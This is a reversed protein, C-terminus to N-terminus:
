LESALDCVGDDNVFCPTDDMKRDVIVFCYDQDMVEGDDAIPKIATDMRSGDNSPVQWLQVNMATTISSCDGTDTLEIMYRGDPTALGLRDPNIPDASTYARGQTLIQAFLAVALIVTM